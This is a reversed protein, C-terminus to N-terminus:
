LHLSRRFNDLVQLARQAIERDSGGLAVIAVLTLCFIAALAVVGVSDIM